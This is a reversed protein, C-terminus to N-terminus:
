PLVSGIEKVGSEQQESLLGSKRPPARSFAYVKTWNVSSLNTAIGISM